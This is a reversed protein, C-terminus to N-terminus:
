DSFAAVLPTWDRLDVDGDGDFDAIACEPTAGSGPGALCDRFTAYDFLDVDNDRDLDCPDCRNFLISITSPGYWGFNAVAIDLDLDGDLDCPM